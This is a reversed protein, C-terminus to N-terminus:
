ILKEFLPLASQLKRHLRALYKIREACVMAEDKDLLGEAADHDLARLLGDLRRQTAELRPKIVNEYSGRILDGLDAVVEFYDRRNGPVWVQRIAGWSTLQRTGTSASAKSIGLMGVIDDLSMPGGALFLLGYIQGTSRPLGLQRCLRAGAEVMELRVKARIAPRTKSVM